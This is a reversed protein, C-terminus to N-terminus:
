IEVWNLFKVIMIEEIFCKKFFVNTWYLKEKLLAESQGMPCNGLEQSTKYRDQSRWLGFVLQFIEANIMELLSDFMDKCCGLLANCYMLVTAIDQWKHIMFQTSVTQPSISFSTVPLTNWGYVAALRRVLALVDGMKGAMFHARLPRLQYCGEGWGRNHLKQVVVTCGDQVQELVKASRKFSM